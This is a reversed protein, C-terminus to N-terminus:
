MMGVPLIDAVLARHTESILELATGHAGAINPDAGAKMLMQLVGVARPDQGVFRAVKHLSTEGFRISLSPLFLQHTKKKEGRNTSM